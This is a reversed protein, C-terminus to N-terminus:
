AQAYVLALTLLGTAYETNTWSGEPDLDRAIMLALGDQGMATAQDYLDVTATDPDVLDGDLATVALNVMTVLLIGATIPLIRSVQRIMAAASRLDTEEQECAFEVTTVEDWPGEAPYRTVAQTPCAITHRHVPRDVDMAVTPQTGRVGPCSWCVLHMGPQGPLYVRSLNHDDHDLRFQAEPSLPCDAPDPGSMLMEATVTIHTM